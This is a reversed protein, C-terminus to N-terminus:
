IPQYENSQLVNQNKKIQKSPKLLSVKVNKGLAAKTKNENQLIIAGQMTDSILVFDGKPLEKIRSIKLSPHHSKIRSIKRSPHHQRLEGSLKRWSKFKENVGSSNHKGVSYITKPRCTNRSPVQPLRAQEPKPAHTLLQGQM